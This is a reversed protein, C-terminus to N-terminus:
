EIRTLTKKELHKCYKEPLGTARLSNLRQEKVADLHQQKLRAEEKKRAAENLMERHTEAALVRHEQIQQQIVQMHRQAKQHQKEEEQKNKLITQKQARLVREFEAQERGAERSLCMEKIRVQELRSAELMAKDRAKRVAQEKENRRWERDKAEQNRRARLDDMEAKTDTARKQQARLRALELEKEVKLRKQEEEHEAERQMKRRNYDLDRQDALEEQEKRHQKAQMTEANICEIEEQLIKQEERKKEMKRLDDQLMQEQKERFRQREQNKLEEEEQRQVRRQQIQEQIQQLGKYRQQKRMEDMQREVELGRLREVEMMADLSREEEAMKEQNLRKDQIQVDRTAQCQVELIAQNLQKIQDDQELQLANAKEVLLKARNREELELGTMIPNKRHSEDVKYIVNKREELAKIEEERKRQYAKQLADKEGKVLIRSASTIQQFKALPLITSERPPESRPVRISRILDKTILQIMEGEKLQPIQKKRAASSRQSAGVNNKFVDGM